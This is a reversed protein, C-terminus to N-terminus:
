KVRIKVSQSWDSKENNPLMKRNQFYYVTGPTLDSVTTKSTFSASLLTWTEDDTSMRWEHAGAGEATLDVSGEEVGDEATNQRGSHTIAKKVSMGSSEIIALSNAPDADAINQVDNRLTRLDNQVAVLAANRASVSATPPKTNCAAELNELVKLNASLETIKTVFGTFYANNQMALVIANAFVILDSIVTPLNLAVTAKKMLNASTM